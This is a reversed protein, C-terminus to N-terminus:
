SASRSCNPIAHRLMSRPSPRPPCDSDTPPQRPTTTAPWAATHADGPRAIWMAPEDLDEEDRIGLRLGLSCSIPRQEGHHINKPTSDTRDEFLEKPTTLPPNPPPLPRSTINSSSLSDEFGDRFARFDPVRCQSALFQRPPGSPNQLRVSWEWLWLPACAGAWNELGHVRKERETRPVKEDFKQSRKWERGGVVVVKVLRSGVSTLQGRVGSM